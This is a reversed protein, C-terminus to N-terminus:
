ASVGFITAVRGRLFAAYIFFGISVGLSIKLNEQTLINM